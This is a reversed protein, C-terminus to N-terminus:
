MTSLSTVAINIRPWALDSRVRHVCRYKPPQACINPIFLKEIPSKPNAVSHGSGAVPGTLDAGLVQPRLEKATMVAVFEIVAKSTVQM